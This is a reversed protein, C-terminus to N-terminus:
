CSGSSIRCCCTCCWMSCSRSRCTSHGAPPPRTTAAGCPLRERFIVFGSVVLVALAVMYVHYLTLHGVVNRATPLNAAWGDKGEIEIEILAFVLAFLFVFVADHTGSEACRM